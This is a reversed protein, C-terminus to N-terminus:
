YYTNYIYNYNFKISVLPAVKNNEKKLVKVTYSVLGHNVNKVPEWIIEYIEENISHVKIMKIDVEEPIVNTKLGLFIIFFLYLYKTRM